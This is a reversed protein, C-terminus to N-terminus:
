GEVSCIFLCTISAFCVSITRCDRPTEYLGPAALFTSTKIGRKSRTQPTNHAVYKRITEKDKDRKPPNVIWFGNWTERANSAARIKMRRRHRSDDIRRRLYPYARPVRYVPNSEINKGRKEYRGLWILLILAFFMTKVDVGWARESSSVTYMNPRLRVTALVILSYLYM